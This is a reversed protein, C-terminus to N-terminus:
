NKYMISKIIVDKDKKGFFERSSFSKTSKFLAIQIDDYYPDCILFNVNIKKEKKSTKEATLFAFRSSAEM